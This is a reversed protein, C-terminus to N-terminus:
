YPTVLDNVFIEGHNTEVAGNENGIYIKANCLYANTADCLAWIKIGYKGPKSPIFM